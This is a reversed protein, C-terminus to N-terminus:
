LTQHDKEPLKHRMWKSHLSFLAKTKASGFIGFPKYFIQTHRVKCGRKRKMEYMANGYYITKINNYIADSIPRYFCLNFYTFDNGAMELKARLEEDGSKVGVIQKNKFAVYFVADDRFIEQIHLLIDRSFFFVSNNHKEHNGSVLQYLREEHGKINSLQRIVVGERRNKNIEYRFKKLRKKSTSGIRQLYEDLSTWNVDMYNLPVGVTRHYKNKFLIKMLEKETDMVNPFVIALKRVSAEKEVAEILAKMTSREKENTMHQNMLFHSGYSNFPCCILAPLFSIGMRNLQRKARGLLWGDISSSQTGPPYIFCAAAGLLSDEEQILFYLPTVQDLFSNELVKLWQYSIFVNENVLANWHIKEIKDITTVIRVKYM